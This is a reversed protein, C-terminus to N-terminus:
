SSVPSRLFDIYKTRKGGGNGNSKRKRGMSNRVSVSFSNGRIKTSPELKLKANIKDRDSYDEDSIPEIFYPDPMIDQVADYSDQVAPLVQESDELKVHSTDRQKSPSM